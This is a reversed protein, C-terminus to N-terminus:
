RRIASVHYGVTCDPTSIRKDLLWCFFPLMISFVALSLAELPLLLWRLPNRWSRGRFLIRTLRQCEQGFFLFFGGNPEIQIDSFGAEPLSKLYWSPTFGGYFHYPMQHLFSGLPATLFLQGGPKLLRAFESIAALPDPVHELVETCLIADFSGTTEPIASIDSVYDLPGYKGEIIQTEQELQAFDHAKYVLHGCYRRFPQGGSGIDLVIFGPSLMRLRKAVWKERGTSNAM